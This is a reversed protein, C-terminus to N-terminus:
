SSGPSVRPGAARAVQPLATGGVPEFIIGDPQLRIAVSDRESDASEPHHLRQRRLSKFKWAWVVPRRKPAAAQETQYDNDNTTLSVLFKLKKMSTVTSLDYRSVQDDARHGFYSSHVHPPIKEGSGLRRASRLSPYRQGLDARM